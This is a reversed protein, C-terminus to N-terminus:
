CVEYSFTTNHIMGSVFGQYKKLAKTLQGHCSRIHLNVPNQYHKAFELHQELVSLQTDLPTKIKGDLGCEGIGVVRKDKLLNSSEKLTTAVAIPFIQYKSACETLSKIDLFMGVHLHADIFM